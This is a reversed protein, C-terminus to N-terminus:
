GTKQVEPREGRQIGIRQSRVGAKLGQVAGMRRGHRAKTSVGQVRGEQWQVAKTKYFNFLM